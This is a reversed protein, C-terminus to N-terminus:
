TTYIRHVNRIIMENQIAAYATHQLLHPIQGNEVNIYGTCVKGLATYSFTRYTFLVIM